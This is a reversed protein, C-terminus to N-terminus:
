GRMYLGMLSETLICSWQSSSGLLTVTPKLAQSNLIGEVSEKVINKGKGEARTMLTAQTPICM